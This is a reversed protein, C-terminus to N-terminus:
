CENAVGAGIRGLCGMVLVREADFEYALDSIKATLSNLYGKCHTPFTTNFSKFCTPVM